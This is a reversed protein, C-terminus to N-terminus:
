VGPAALAAAMDAELQTLIRALLGNWAEVAAAPDASRPLPAREDYTKQLAVRRGGERVDLLFFQMAVRAAPDGGRTIEVAVLHSELIFGADALSSASVVPSIVAASALWDRVIETTMSAPSAFFLNYFDTQVRGDAHRTIFQKREVLSSARVPRVVLGATSATAAPPAPRVVALAYERRDPAERRLGSLCATSLTTALFLAGVMLIRTPATM